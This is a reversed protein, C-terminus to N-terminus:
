RFRSFQGFFLLFLLGLVHTLKSKLHFIAVPFGYETNAEFLNGHKVVVEELIFMELLIFLDFKTECNVCLLCSVLILSVVIFSVLVYLLLLEILNGLLGLPLTLCARLLLLPALLLLVLASCVSKIAQHLILHLLLLVDFLFFIFGSRVDM